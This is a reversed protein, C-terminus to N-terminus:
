MATQGDSTILEVTYKSAIHAWSPESIYRIDLFTATSMRHQCFDFDVSHAQVGSIALILFGMNLEFVVIKKINPAFRSDLDSNRETRKQGKKKKTQKNNLKRWFTILFNTFNIWRGLFCFFFSFGFFLHVPFTPLYFTCNLSVLQLSLPLSLIITVVTVVTSKYPCVLM